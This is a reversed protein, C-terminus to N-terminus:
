SLTNGFRNVFFGKRILFTEIPSKVLIRVKLITKIESIENATEEFRIWLKGLLGACM